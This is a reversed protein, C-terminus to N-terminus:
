KNINSSSRVKVVSSDRIPHIGKYCVAWLVTKKKEGKWGQSSMAFFARDDLGFLVVKSFVLDALAKIKFKECGQVLLLLRETWLDCGLRHHKILAAQTSVAWCSVTEKHLCSLGPAGADCMVM